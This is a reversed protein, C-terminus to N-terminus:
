RADVRDEVDKRCQPQHVANGHVLVVAELCLLCRVDERWGLEPELAPLAKLEAQVVQEDELLHLPGALLVQHSDVRRGCVTAPLDGIFPQAVAFGVFNIVLSLAIMAIFSLWRRFVARATLHLPRDPWVLLQSVVFNFQVAFFLALAYAAVPSLGPAEFLKLLGFQLLFTVGGVVLFRLPRAGSSRFYSILPGARDNGAARSGSVRSPQRDASRRARRFAQRGATRANGAVRRRGGERRNTWGLTFLMDIGILAGEFGVGAAAWQSHADAYLAIAEDRHGDLAALGAAVTPRWAAPTRGYIHVADYRGAAQRGNSADSGM